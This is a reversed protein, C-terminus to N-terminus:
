KWVQWWRKGSLERFIKRCNKDDLRKQKLIRKENALNEHFSIIESNLISFPDTELNGSLNKINFIIQNKLYIDLEDGSLVTSIKSKKHKCIYFLIMNSCRSDYVSEYEWDIPNAALEKFKLLAQYKAENLDCKNNQLNM